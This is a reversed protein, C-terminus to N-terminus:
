PNLRDSANAEVFLRIMNIYGGVVAVMIVIASLLLTVVVAVAFGILSKGIIAIFSYRASSTLLTKAMSGAFDAAYSLGLLISFIPLFNGRSEVALFFAILSAASMSLALRITFRKKMMNIEGGAIENTRSKLCGGPRESSAACFDGERIITFNKM